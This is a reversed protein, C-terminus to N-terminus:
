GYELLLLVTKCYLVFAILANYRKWHLKYMIHFSTETVSYFYFLYNVKTKTEWFKM